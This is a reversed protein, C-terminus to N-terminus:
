LSDWRVTVNANDICSNCTSGGCGGWGSSYGGLTLVTGSYTADWAIVKGSGQSGSSSPSSSTLRTSTGTECGSSTAGDPYNFYRWSVDVSTITKGKLQPQLAALDVSDRCWGRQCYKKMEAGLAFSLENIECATGDANSHYGANCQYKNEVIKIKCAGYDAGNWVREGTGNSISCDITNADCSNNEQNPHHTSPNHCQTVQCPDHSTGNWIQRGNGNAVDCSTFRLLNCVEGGLLGLQECKTILSSKFHKVTAFVPPYDRHESTEKPRYLVRVSFEADPDMCDQDCKPLWNIEATFQCNDDGEDFNFSFCMGLDRFLGAKQRLSSFTLLGDHNYINAIFLRQNWESSNVPPMCESGSKLCDFSSNQDDSLIHLLAQPNTLWSLLSNSIFLAVEENSLSQSSFSAEGNGFSKVKFGEGCNQFAFIALVIAIVSLVYRLKVQM